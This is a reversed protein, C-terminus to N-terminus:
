VSNPHKIRESKYLKFGQEFLAETEENYRFPFQKKIETM